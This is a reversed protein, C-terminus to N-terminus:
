WVNQMGILEAEIGTLEKFKVALKVVNDSWEKFDDSLPNIDDVTFGLVQSDECADYHFSYATMDEGEYWEYFEEHFNGAVGYMECEDDNMTVANKVKIANAGVIMGGSIDIGM